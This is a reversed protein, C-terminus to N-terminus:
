HKRNIFRVVTKKSNEKSKGIRHCSEIHGATVHVNKAKSLVNIVTSELSDDFISNLIENVERNNRRGYQEISNSKSELSIIKEQLQNVENNLIKNENQLNRIMVEKLNIIEDKIDTFRKKFNEM